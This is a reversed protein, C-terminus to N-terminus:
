PPSPRLKAAFEAQEEFGFTFWQIEPKSLDKPPSQFWPGTVEAGEVKIETSKEIGLSAKGALKELQRRKNDMCFTHWAPEIRARVVVYDGIWAARYSLVLKDDHYVAAPDPSDAALLRGASLGALLFFHTLPNM